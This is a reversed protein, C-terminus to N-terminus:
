AGVRTFESKEKKFDAGLGAAAGGVAGIGTGVIPDM